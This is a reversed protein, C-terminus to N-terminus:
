ASQLPLALTVLLGGEARNAASIRGGHQQLARAAIALGLGWGGADRSRAEDARVFPEFIQQLLSEDIGPGQDAVQIVAESTNSSLRVEVEGDSYKLANRIVNELARGLQREDALVSLSPPGQYCVRPHEFRANDVQTQVLTALDVAARPPATTEANLRVLVLIEEILEDLLQAEREIRDLEAHPDAKRRALELAVRQRALPTRLEHSVDRLLQQQGQLLRQLREAMRDFDRGLDGLEDQRRNLPAGVRTDLAGDALQRSASRLREIPQTLYRAMGYALLAVLLVSLAIRWAITFGAFLPDQLQRPNFIVLTYDQDGFRTQWLLPRQPRHHHRQWGFRPEEPPRDLRSFWRGRSDGTLSSGNADLLATRLETRRNLERRWERVAAAGGNDYAAAAQQAYRELLEAQRGSSEFQETVLWTTAMNALLLGMMMLWFGFFLRWFLSRIRM